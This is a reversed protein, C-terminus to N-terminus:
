SPTAEFRQNLAAHRHRPPHRRRPSRRDSVHGALSARVAALAAPHDAEPITALVARRPGAGDLLDLILDPDSPAFM